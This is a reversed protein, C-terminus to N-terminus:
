KWGNKRAEIGSENTGSEKVITNQENKSHQNQSKIGNHLYNEKTWERKKKTKM